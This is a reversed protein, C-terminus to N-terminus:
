HEYDNLGTIIPGDADLHAGQYGHAYLADRIALIDPQQSIWHAAAGEEEVSGCADLADFRVIWGYATAHIWFLLDDTRTANLAELTAPAIHATSVWAVRYSEPFPDASANEQPQIKVEGRKIASELRAGSMAGHNFDGSDLAAQKSPYVRPAPATETDGFKSLWEILEELRAVIQARTRKRKLESRLAPEEHTALHWLDNAQSITMARAAIGDIIARAAIIYTQAKM